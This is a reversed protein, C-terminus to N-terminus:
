TRCQYERETRARRRRVFSGVLGFGFLMQAWVAPEPVAGTATIRTRVTLTIPDLSQDALGDFRSFGNFTLTTSYVGASLGTFDLSLLNGTRSGGGILGAFSSGNFGFGSAPALVFSGGLTEAFASGSNGNLIGLDASITGIGASLSGFDLTFASGSGSFSGQGGAKFLQALALQTVTGTFSVQQSALTLDAMEPNVSTFGLSANGTIVGATATSLTFSADGSAGAALQGPGNATVGAPTAGISTALSDALAGVAANSIGVNVVPADAGQRVTGFDVTATALQAVAAAYVNSNVTVSQGALELDSLGSGAIALSTNAINVAGTFSGATGTGRAINLAQSGGVGLAGTSAQGAGNVTVGNSGTATASLSETFGGTGPAANSITLNATAAADGVRRAALTISAPQSGAIAAQYVTSNVTVAQSALALDSLGSGAIALSTNAINVAGTFSGATGTGRAITLGQSGGVGLPGTSAQGAGNVTIGNSGTATASLAETFGGTGPAVNSITLVSTAAADGVRRSALTIEAPQSGAIAAQFVSSNVTVSQSALTLNSLGSGAAALSTNAISISGTFAGAAGTGRAITLGQAGGVGLDGTTAQGAGNVTFGNSGTATASLSETFGGTGPAINSITLNATAAADGIRRSALTIEAPQSGAIAAQFVAGGLTVVQSALPTIGAGSTGAGNSAFNITVSGNAGAVSTDISVSIDTSSAGAALLSVPGGSGTARGTTAGVAADLRESFGDNLASNTITLVQTPAADGVRRSGFAVSTPDLTAQALRFVSGEADVQGLVTVNQSPLDLNGLGSTGTGNSQLLIEVSGSKAGATATNLRVTLTSTDSAGAGLNLISGAVSQVDGAVSGFNANLGEQFQALVGALLRNEVTISRIQTSGQQVNGFQLLGSIIPNALAFVNANVTVSGGAIAEEALGSTGTGNTAFGFNVGGSKAGASSTDVSVTAGGSSGAAIVGAPVGSVSADGTTGTGTVRLGESFAGAPATNAITVAGSATSGVRFNGLNVPTPTVSGVARNFVAGSLAVNADPLALTGLGSTGAGNSALTIVAQGSRAGATATDLNITLAGSGDAALNTINGSGSFGAPTSGISADLGEQFGLPVGGIAANTVTVTRSATTGVRVNGFNLSSTVGANALAFVNANVTVNGGDIAEEALGSTGTGNTAFNFNVTGSKAGATGTAVSVTAGGSGGAAIVSATVGSVGADGTTGTGTVRLGESFAGAPATNAITVTGSATSGIRFNGLNVPTPTVSGVARNFVAGTLAVNADPLAQNALGSTGTGNSALAIVAQGNRAGATATDLTITLLGEGGVALNTVSGSGSYGAPTSGISADLGEQFGQPVGALAANTVTVTRNATAGVRVNGFNLSSTVGANALAFVNASVAVSGGAIAEEALGSTGTGNTALIFNVTGSRAGAAATSISVTAGASSGAAIIGTPVGSVGADGSTDTGTVRLGESFAGAPATNAITVAGSATSGVRVNGLNIPTPTVSGVARNFAAGALNITADAVNDFNNAVIISQGALSGATGSTFSITTVASGGNPGAVFDANALSVGPANGNQVAGRLTTATGNNTITLAIQTSGGIRINGVNLTNGTLGTASLDQTASVANILGTGAVNARANFSNGSGFGANQYDNSILITRTGLNLSAGNQTLSGASLDAVAASADLTAGSDIQIAGSGTIARTALTGGNARVTGSNSIAVTVSGFGQVTGSNTLSTAGFSGGILDLLGANSFAGGGATAVYSRGSGIRLAGAAANTTLTAEIGTNGPGSVINSNAGALRLDAANTVLSTLGTGADFDITSGGASGIVNWTGGTLTTGSAGTVPGLMRFIGAEVQVTGSNTFAADVTTTGAGTKQYLGLNELLGGNVNRAFTGSSSTSDLFTSGVANRLTGGGTPNFPDLNINFSAGTTAGGRLELVRGDEILVQSVGFNTNGTVIVTGAGILTASSLFASSATVTGPGELRGGNVVELTPLSTNTAFSLTGSGIRVIGGPSGIFTAGNITHTNSNFLLVAGSALDVTGGITSNRTHNMVGSDLDILGSNTFAVDVTTTTAGTKQYTGLNEFTGGGFSSSFNGSSTTSDLFTSGAANRLTGGNVPSFTDLNINFSTGTTAGGRLELVRGDDINLSSTGIGTAGQVITQGTGRMTANNLTAAGAVTVIGTGTLTGGTQSLSVVSTTSDLTLTGGQLQLIPLGTTGTFGVSGSTIRVIGDASGTVSNGALSHVGGNFALVTGNALTFTGAHTGNGSLALTGVDIQVSGSNIFESSISTTGAGTKQYTGLNEFTGNGFSTAINASSTTSDVFTSGVANRLIGGNQPSFADLNISLSTGTTAGGRLELVRGDDINISSAGFSTAGQVITQGTGRQNASNFTAAGSVTVIGSGNMTGGTHSLTAVSTASDLTLTGGQMQLIAMSTAGNFGVTGSTVRVIGGAASTFNSGTLNHTGGGFTLTAGNALTITGSHTGNNSLALTGADILLAGSNVFATSISTQAAGTKQYTGLNEFTGNGFSSAINAFSTTGDVFTSGAANRLIGGNQPSFADLNISYSTGTSTLGGRFELVRGDDINIGSAGISGAGQVIAQGTGRVNASNFSAAGAITVVGSGTLTGGTQSLSGVTSAGDLQLTGSSLAVSTFSTAADFAMSGGQVQLVPITIAGNFSVTGGTTRVTAGPAVTINASALTHTGGGFTLTAGNALSITGNHTTAGNLALTGADIQLNGSNIFATSITTTAAGTKQYTGLNEFSGNGFSTSISGFSSTSDVFTSGAANRLTGGNQPSFADMNISFSTTTTAGGRLEVARGDDINIGSAGLSTAGQIILQGSGRLSANNLVGAGAVTVVGTGLLTGGSHSFSEVSTASDLTLTGSQLQLIPLSTAGTFAVTGGAVRVIGGSAGTFNAGAISHTGATLSLIAGNALSITGNQTSSAGLALVGADIQLSGSNTFAVSITTTSAGTKQFTGLNDFSGGTFSSAINAFSSTSDVFTSGAANRLTGGNLPSFADLNISLSTGTTAGGRLELVRGDDINVGGTGFSTSGQIITQGTGRLNAGSLSANGTVTVIGSGTLTGGTHNLSALTSTGNLQLTGGQIRTAQTNTYANNIILEGGTVLFDEDSALSNITVTGTRFTITRVAAGGVSIVVDDGSGPLGLNWNGPVDWFGDADPVWLVTAATLPALPALAMAASVAFISSARMIESRFVGKSSSM